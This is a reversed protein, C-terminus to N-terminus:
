FRLGIGIRANTSGIAGAEAFASLNDKFYYKVGIFTGAYLGSGYVKGSNFYNDKWKFSRYGIVVGAYLDWSNNRIKLLENFHYSGRAGIYTANFKYNLYNYSLYDFNLGASIQDHIGSEFSLGLPMGGSYYSNVGIGLNLLQDGKAYGPRGTEACLYGSFLALISILIARLMNNSTIYPAAPSTGM